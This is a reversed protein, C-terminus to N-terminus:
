RPRTAFYYAYNRDLANRPVLEVYKVEFGITELCEWFEAVDIVVSNALDQHYSRWVPGQPASRAYKTQIIAAGDPCLTEFAIRAIQDAHERRPVLELVYFCVFLDVAGAFQRGTEIQNDLQTLASRIPTSCVRAVQYATELLSEESIDVAIFEEALPAFRVANAGGGVGWELVRNPRPLRCARRFREYMALHTQGVQDWTTAWGPIATDRWHSNAKWSTENPSLWYRRAAETRSTLLNKIAAKIGNLRFM